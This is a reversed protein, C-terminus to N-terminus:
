SCGCGCGGGHTRVTPPLSALGSDAATEVPPADQRPIIGQRPDIGLARAWGSRTSAWRQLHNWAIFALLGIVVSWLVTKM